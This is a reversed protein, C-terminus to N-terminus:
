RVCIASALVFRATNRASGGPRVTAALGLGTQACTNLSEVVASERARHARIRRLMRAEADENRPPAPARPAAPPTERRVTASSATATMPPTTTPQVDLSPVASALPALLASATLSLLFALPRSFVRM